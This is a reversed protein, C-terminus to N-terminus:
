QPLVTIFQEGGEQVSYISQNLPTSPGNRDIISFICDTFQEKVGRVSIM